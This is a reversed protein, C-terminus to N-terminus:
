TDVFTTHSRELSQAHVIDCTHAVYVPSAHAAPKFSGFSAPSSCCCRSAKGEAEQALVLGSFTHKRLVLSVAMEALHLELELHLHWCRVGLQLPILCSLTCSALLPAHSAFLLGTRVFLISISSLFSSMLSCTLPCGHIVPGMRTIWVSVPLWRCKSSASALELELRLEYMRLPFHISQL